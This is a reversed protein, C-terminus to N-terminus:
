PDGEHRPRRRVRGHRRGAGPRQGRCARDVRDRQPGAVRLPHDGRGHHPDPGRARSRRRGPRPDTRSAAARRPRVPGPAAATRAARDPPVDRTDAGPDIGPVPQRGPARDRPRAPRDRGHARADLRTRWPRRGAARADTTGKESVGVVALPPTSGRSRTPPSPAARTSCSGRSSAGHGSSRSPSSPRTARSRRPAASRCGSTRLPGSDRRWCANWRRRSASWARGQRRAHRPGLAAGDVIRAEFAPHQWPAAEDVPVVDIHAMLVVPREASRARGASCCRTVRSGPSSWTSTCCRSSGPSSRPSRSSRHRTVSGPISTPSPRSGSWHRCSPSPGTASRQSTPPARPRRVAEWPTLSPSPLGDRERSSGGRTTMARRAGSRHVSPTDTTGTDGTCSRTSASGAARAHPSGAAAPTTPWTASRSRASRTSRRRPHRVGRPGRRGAGAPDGFFCAGLGEDVATQLILLSAM